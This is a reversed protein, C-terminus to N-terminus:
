AEMATSECKHKNSIFVTHKNTDKSDYLSNMQSPTSQELLKNKGM